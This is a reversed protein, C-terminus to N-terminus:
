CTVRPECRTAACRAIEEMVADLVRPNRGLAVHGVGGFAQNRAGPLESSTQPAIINDHHTYMSTILSRTAADESGALARLWDSEPGGIGTRRMQVANAGIGFAALSTGYHPTGLTILRAVRATGYARMWARAVLGGMSHAVVIVRQAGTDRCLTEVAQNVLQAYGDIDGTVPELDISAHSIRAADLRPRLRCWYGSNCGYGHLLLVPPVTSGPYVRSRPAARPGHWSSYMMSAAFEEAFLRLSSLPRLRFEEPTPSACRASMLFNNANILMRVLVVSGLGAGLAQWRNAGLELAGLGIALAAGAQVLLILRLIARASM